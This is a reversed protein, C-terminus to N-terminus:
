PAAPLYQFQPSFQGSAGPLFAPAGAGMSIRNWKSGLYLLCVTATAEEEEKKKQKTELAVNHLM